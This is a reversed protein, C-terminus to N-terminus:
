KPFHYKLGLFKLSAMTNELASVSKIKRNHQKQLVQRVHECTQIFDARETETWRMEQADLTKATCPRSFDGAIDGGFLAYFPEFMKKSTYFVHRDTQMLHDGITNLQTRRAM